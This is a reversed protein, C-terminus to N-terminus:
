DVDVAVVVPVAYEAIQLQIFDDPKEDPEFSCFLVLFPLLDPL